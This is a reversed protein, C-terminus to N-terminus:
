VLFHFSVSAQGLGHLWPESEKQSAGEAMELERFCPWQNILRSVLHPSYESGRSLPRSPSRPNAENAQHVQLQSRLLETSIHGARLVAPLGVCPIQPYLSKSFEVNM